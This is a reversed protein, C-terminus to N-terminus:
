HTAAIHNKTTPTTKPPYFPKRTPPFKPIEPTNKDTIKIHKKAKNEKCLHSKRASFNQDAVKNERQKLLSDISFQPRRSFHLLLFKGSIIWFNKQNGQLSLWVIPPPCRPHQDITTLMNDTPESTTLPM